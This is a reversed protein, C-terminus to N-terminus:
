ISGLHLNRSVAPNLSPGSEQPIEPAARKMEDGSLHDKIHDSFTHEAERQDRRAEQLLNLIANQRESGPKAIQSQQRLRYVEQIVDTLEESLKVCVPCSTKM